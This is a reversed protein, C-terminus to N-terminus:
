PGTSGLPSPLISTEGTPCPCLLEQILRLHLLIPRREEHIVPAQKDHVQLQSTLYVDVEALLLYSEVEPPPASSSVPRAYRPRIETAWIRFAARYFETAEGRPISAGALGTGVNSGHQVWAWGKVLQEWDSLHFQAPPHDVVPV